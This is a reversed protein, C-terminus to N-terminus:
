MRRCKAKGLSATSAAPIRTNRRCRVRRASSNRHQRLAPSCQRRGAVSDARGWAKRASLCRRRSSTPLRVRRTPSKAKEVGFAGLSGRRMENAMDIGTGAEQQLLPNTTGLGGFSEGYSSVKALSKIRQQAGASAESIKKALDTKAVVDGGQQGSFMATDATAQPGM